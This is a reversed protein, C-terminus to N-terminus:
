ENNMMIMTSIQCQQWSAVYYLGIIDEQCNLKQLVNQLISSLTDYLLPIQCTM